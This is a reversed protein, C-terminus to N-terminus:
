PTEPDRRLQEVIASQADPSMGRPLALAAFRQALERAQGEAEEVVKWARRLAEREGREVRSMLQRVAPLEAQMRALHKPLPPLDRDAVRRPEVHGLNIALTPLRFETVRAGQALQPAALRNGLEEVFAQASAPRRDRDPSLAQRVWEAEAAHMGESCPEGRLQRSLVEHP